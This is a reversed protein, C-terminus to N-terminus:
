WDMQFASTEDAEHRIEDVPEARGPGRYLRNPANFVIGPESGVNKYAHVVGVPVVVAQPNDQGVVVAHRNRYTPSKERNDWMFLRFNSPGIFCFYDAQDYHEHPGRAVGPLTMSIYAMVPHFKPDLEDHRFLECLWGRQDHFHKLPRFLVGDIPGVQFMKRELSNGARDPGHFIPAAQRV